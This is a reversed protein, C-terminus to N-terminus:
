FLLKRAWAPYQEGLGSSGLPKVHVIANAVRGDHESMLALRTLQAIRHAASASINGDVNITSEVFLFPGSKRARVQAVAIVGKVAMCTKRLLETEKAGAPADSLDKLSDVGIIYAQKIIVGAVLVGAAPDLVPYGMMSGILGAFVAM